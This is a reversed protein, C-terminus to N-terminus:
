EEEIRRKDVFHLLCNYIVDSKYYTLKNNISEVLIIKPYSTELIDFFEGFEKKTLM